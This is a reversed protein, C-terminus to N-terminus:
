KAGEVLWALGKLFDVTWKMDKETIIFMYGVWDNFKFAGWKNMLKPDFWVGTPLCMVQFQKKDQNWRIHQSFVELVREGKVRKKVVREWIDFKSNAM